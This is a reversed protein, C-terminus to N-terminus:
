GLFSVVEIKLPYETLLRAYAKHANELTDAVLLIRRNHLASDGIATPYIFSTDLGLENALAIALKVSHANVGATIYDFGTPTIDLLREVIKAQAQLQGNESAKWLKWSIDQRDTAHVYRVAKSPIRM